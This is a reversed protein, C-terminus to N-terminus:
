TFGSAVQQDAVYDEVLREIYQTQKLDVNATIITIMMMILAYYRVKM